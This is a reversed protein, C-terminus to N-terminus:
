PQHELHVVLEHELDSRTLPLLDLLEHAFPHARGVREVHREVHRDPDAGGPVGGGVSRRAPHEPAAAARDPDAGGVVAAVVIAWRAGLGDAAAGALPAGIALGASEVAVIWTFTSVSTGPPAVRDVIELVYVNAPGFAAGAALLGVLAPWGFPLVAVPLLLLPFLATSVLAGRVPSSRGHGAGAWIGGLVNGAALAALLLGGSASSDAAQALAPLGVTLAGMALGIGIAAVMLTRVGAAKIGSGVHALREGSRWSRSAPVWVFLAGGLLILLCIVWVVTAPPVVLVLGAVLTPGLVMTVQMSVSDLAYATRVRTTASSSGGSPDRAPSSRPHRPVPSRRVARRPRRAHAAAPVLAFAICFLPVYVLLPRTQGFRDVLSGRLPATVGAMLSFAGLAVGAGFSSTRERVVLVITLGVMAYGLRVPIMALSLRRADRFALVDLYSRM